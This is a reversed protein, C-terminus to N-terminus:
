KVQDNFHSEIVHITIYSGTDFLQDTLHKIPGSIHKNDKYIIQPLSGRDVVIESLQYRSSM